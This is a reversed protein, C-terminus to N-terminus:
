LDSERILELMQEASLRQPVETEDLLSEALERKRAHLDVIKEEVTGKAVIRYVTVPREQGIRHARDSAQEEVAPNWWPDMHIVYDAATLNLGTGGAKLSILFCDGEGGQFRRVREARELAPTSGDLYQYSVSHNELYQRIITLHDVFQSFVLAKHGNERLEELIEIFTELKASPYYTEPQALVSNCCARRLKMLEAFVKFRREEPNEKSLEDVAKRRLVEYLTREEDKMEVRLIIDTKPPLEELVEEKNRRLIFPQIARKLKRRAEKDGDREIPTAYRRNFHELSGLYRPNLFRFLNWLESLRNEIPTGTTAVRFDGKLKMAAASRKTGMNKIAQAEDLVITNWHIKELLEIENQLLGYTTVVVDFPELNSLLENRSGNRLEKLNLTPAFRKAEAQWNLCVSTPAVILAPGGNGRAVLVALTQITKGLGMDDALCAGAKWHALRMLWQFGDMQYNRLQGRFTSPLDPNLNAAERVQEVQEKWASIDADLNIGSLLPDLLGAALPSIRFEEGRTESLAAITELRNRFEQTLAIFQGNGLPIFRGYRKDMLTLADKMSLVLDEDIQIEGSLAFWDQGGRLSAKMSSASVTSRIHMPEGQPWEIVSSSQFQELELLFELALESSHLTWKETNVQEGENLSPCGRVLEMLADKEEDLARKAQVRKREHLGFLSSGGRGPHCPTSDPGLPRVIIEVDLGEANPQLQIYLRKDAEISEANAEIGEIDSHITVVSALSGLTKLLSDKAAEPIKLGEKKLIEAMKLHREEFRTVRLCNPGDELILHRSTHINDPYPILQLLYFGREAIVLLQPEDNIVDIRNRNTASFLCPHGALADLAQASDLTHESGYYGRVEHICAIARSDAETLATLSEPNRYLRKLAVNKGRSWGTSQLTQEIPQVTLTTVTGQESLWFIEWILRKTGKDPKNATKASIGTLASLSREWDTQRTLLDRIPHSPSILNSHKQAADPSIAHILVVLESAFFNLGIATFHDCVVLLLPLLENHPPTDLWFAYLLYFFTVISREEREKISLNLSLFDEKKSSPDYLFRMMSLAAMSDAGQKYLATDIYDKLKKESDPTNLLLLPYFHGTWSQYAVKRKKTAKRIAKLGEEYLELANTRMGNCLECFALLAYRQPSTLQNAFERTKDPYGRMAFLEALLFLCDPNNSNNHCYDEILKLIEPFISVDSMAADIFRYFASVALPVPLSLILAPDLPNALIEVFPDIQPMLSLRSDFSGLYAKYYAEVNGAYLSKRLSRFLCSPTDFSNAEESKKTHLIEDVADEMLDYTSNNITDRTALERILPNCSWRTGWPQVNKEVLNSKLWRELMPLTNKQLNWVTQSAPLNIVTITQHKSKEWHNLISVYNSLAVPVFIVSLVQFAEKELESMAEYCLLLSKRKEEDFFM